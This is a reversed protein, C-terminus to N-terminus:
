SIQRHIFPRSSTVSYFNIKSNKIVHMKNAVLFKSVSYNM